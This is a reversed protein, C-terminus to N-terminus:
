FFAPHSSAELRAGAALESRGHLGLKEYARALQNAVTRITTGRTRAIESNSLGRLALEAVAMESVTLRTADVRSSEFGLVLNGDELRSRRVAGAKDERVTRAAMRILDVRHRFGLRARVRRLAHWVKQPTSALESAIYKLSSGDAAFRLVSMEFDGLIETSARLPASPRAVVFHRGECDFEHVRSLAGDALAAWISVFEDLDLASSSRDADWARRQLAEFFAAATCAEALDSVNM